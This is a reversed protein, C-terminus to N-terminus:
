IKDTKLSKDTKSINAPRVFADPPVCAARPSLTQSGQDLCVYKIVGDRHALFILTLDPYKWILLRDKHLEIKEDM